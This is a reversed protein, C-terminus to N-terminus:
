EVSPSFRQSSARTPRGELIRHVSGVHDLDAHTLWIWKLEAPDIVQQLASMFSPVADGAEGDLPAGTYVLVPQEGKIVFANIPLQGFGPLPFYTTLIDIDPTVSFPREM